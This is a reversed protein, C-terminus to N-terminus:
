EHDNGNPVRGSGDNPAWKIGSIRPREPGAPNGPECVAPHDGHGLRPLAEPVRRGAHDRGNSRQDRCQASDQSDQRVSRCPRSTSPRHSGPQPGRAPPDPPGQRVADLPRPVSGTRRRPASGTPGPPLWGPAGPAPGARGDPRRRDPHGARCLADIGQVPLTDSQVEHPADAEVRDVHLAPAGIPDDRQQVAPLQGVRDMGPVARDGARVLQPVHLDPESVDPSDLEAASAATRADSM